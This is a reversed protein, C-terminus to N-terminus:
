DHAREMRNQTSGPSLEGRRVARGEDACRRSFLPEGDELIMVDWGADAKLDNRLECSQVHDCTSSCRRNTSPGTRAITTYADLVQAYDECAQILGAATQTQAQRYEDLLQPLVLKPSEIAEFLERRGTMQSFAPILNEVVNM